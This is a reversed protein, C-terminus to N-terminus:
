PKPPRPKLKCAASREKTPRRLFDRVYDVLVALVAEEAVTKVYRGRLYLAARGRGGAVAIDAERAEGPGNVMCGMVAVSPWVAKPFEAALKGLAEELAHALQMVDLQVRGCTPCAVVRPGAPRLNLARLLELGVQVERRPPETLSIRLTDGIGEALLIGLAAVSRVSGPLFTGAETLGLHLPYDTQQALLRYAQVTRAVDAAKVSLKIERYDLDELLRAHELASAVLAQATAGGYQQLLKKELSGANVGIRIPVRRERCAQVVERIKWSAGINGPNIRLGDAGSRLALIALRHDFHIDAVLPIPIARRIDQLALAAARDPVAVRIIECGARALARIQTVTSRVNRTDTTTMSQVALPADGGIAVAGLNIQRTSRRPALPASAQLAHM